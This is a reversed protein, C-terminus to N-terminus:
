EISGGEANKVAIRIVRDGFQRAEIKLNASAPTRDTHAEFRGYFAGIYRMGIYDSTLRFPEDFGLPLEPDTGSCLVALSKGKLQHRIAKKQPVYFDCFRDVFTKMQASMTYWYLPTALVWVPSSVLSEILSLYDDNKNSSEYSFVGIDYLALDILPTSVDPFAMKALSATNGDSRSSALLVAPKDTAFIMPNKATM